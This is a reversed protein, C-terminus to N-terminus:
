REGEAAAACRLQILGSSPALTEALAFDAQGERAADQQRTNRALMDQRQKRFGGTGAEDDVWVIGAKRQDGAGSLRIASAGQRSRRRVSQPERAGAAIKQPLAGDDMDGAARLAAGMRALRIERQDAARIAAVVDHRAAGGAVSRRKVKETSSIM